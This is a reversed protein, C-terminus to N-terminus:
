LLSLKSAKQTMFILPLFLFTDICPQLLYQCQILQTFPLPEATVIFSEQCILEYIAFTELALFVFRKDSNLTQTSENCDSKIKIAEDATM